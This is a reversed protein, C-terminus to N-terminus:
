GVGEFPEYDDDYGHYRRHRPQILVYELKQVMGFELSDFVPVVHRTATAKGRM